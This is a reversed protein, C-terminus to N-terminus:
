DCYTLLSHGPSITNSVSANASAAYSAYTDTLYGSLVNDFEVVCYGFFIMSSISPWPATHFLPPVTSSFLWLGLSLVPAAIYFGFLKHEPEWMEGNETCSKAVRVDYIRPLFSLVVGAIMPLLVLSAKKEDFGFGEVYVIDLCESFLYVLGYVTSAMIAVLTVIPETFFLRQPQLLSYKLFEKFTPKADDDELSLGDFGTSKEIARVHQRLVKSPRSETPGLCFLGTIATVVGGIWFM